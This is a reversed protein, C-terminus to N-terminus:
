ANVIGTGIGSRGPAVCFPAQNSYCRFEWGANDAMPRLFEEGGRDGPIQFSLDTSGIRTWDDQSLAYCYGEKVYTHPMLEIKGNQEYFVLSKAGRELKDKSYSSDLQRQTMETTMMNKWAKHSVFVYLDGELGKEVLAGILDQIKPFTLQGGVATSPSQWLSFKSADINFITTANTLIKHIGAAENGKAGAFFLVDTAIVGAPVADFTLTRGSLSMSTIFGTGRLVTLAANWFDIPAGEMGAWIGPGWEATTITVVNAAVGAVAALGMQGYLLEIEMRKRASKLMGEVVLATARGFAAGSKEAISITEYDITERLVFQSATVQADQTGGAIAPRLPFAGSNPGAYTAGHPYQLLVPQHYVKGVSKVPSKFPVLNQVKNQEPILKEIKTAFQDKFFGSLTAVRNEGLAM